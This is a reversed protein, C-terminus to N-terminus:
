YKQLDVFMVPHEAIKNAETDLLRFGAKKYFSVADYKADVVVFRCGVSPMIDTKILTVSFDVLSQGLGFGRCSSDVALRAIKVAPLSDYGNAQPCDELFYTKDLKIESCILSTFACVRNTDNVVVYTKTINFQHFQYASKQLFTKLPLYIKDGMSFRKVNDSEQIARIHFNTSDM